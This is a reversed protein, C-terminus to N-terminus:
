RSIPLRPRFEGVPEGERHLGHESRCGQDLGEGRYRAVGSYM